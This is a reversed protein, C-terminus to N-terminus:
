KPEFLTLRVTRRDDAKAFYFRLRIERIEEAHLVPAETCRGWFYVHFDDLSLWVDDRPGWYSAGFNEWITFRQDRKDVLDVRVKFSPDMPRDTQLRLFAHAPLGRVRAIAMTPRLPDDDVAQVFATLVAGCEASRMDRKGSKGREVKGSEEAMKGTAGDSNVVLGNIGTWAGSRSSISHEDGIPDRGMWFRRRRLEWPVPAFDREQPSTELGFYVPSSRATADVFEAQWYDRFYGQAKATFTVPIDVRGMAPVIFESTLLRLASPPSGVASASDTPGSRADPGGEPAPPGGVLPRGVAPRAAADRVIETSAEGQAATAAPIAISVHDLPTAEIVGRVPQGSFNYCRLAGRIPRGNLFRYTGAVKHPITTPNDPIWQVVIPNPDRPPEALMRNPFPHERTFDAYATWAPLPQDPALTLAQPIGQGVLIFPMFVAVEPAALAQRAASVTFDAQMQRREPNLFDGPAVANMGCETIWLPIGTPPSGLALPQGGQTKQAEERGDVGVWREAFAEHARIVGALDQAYGYFHFNVADTYDFLGNRAARDLWPGPPLALAGMLVVPQAPPPNQTRLEPNQTPNPGSVGRPAGPVQWKNSAVQSEAFGRRIGLYVAKEFAAYRDPLDRCYGVDPEGAIEWADVAAGYTQEMTQAAQYVALLDEPLADGPQTVPVPKLGLFSVVRFGAAREERMAPNPGRERLISIGAARLLPLYATRQSSDVHATLCADIGWGAPLDATRGVIGPGVLSAVVVLYGCFGGLKM